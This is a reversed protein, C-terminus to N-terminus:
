DDIKMSSDYHTTIRTQNLLTIGQESPSTNRFQSGNWLMDFIKREKATFRKGNRWMRIDHIAQM